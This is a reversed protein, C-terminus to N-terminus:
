GTYLIPRNATRWYPHHARGSKDNTNLPNPNQNMYWVNAIGTATQPVNTASNAAETAHEADSLWTSYLQIGRVIGCTAEKTGTGGLYVSWDSAGIYFAPNIPSSLASSCYTTIYFSPNGYLDPIYTNELQGVHAGSTMLRCKRVQTYWRGKIVELGSVDGPNALWDNAAKLGANEWYHKTGISGTGNQRHGESDVLGNADPYPHTGWSYEGGDWGFEDPPGLNPTHWLLAYYGTQQRPYYQVIVTHGVRPLLNTGDWVLAIDSGAVENQLNYDIGSVAEITIASPLLGFNITVSRSM